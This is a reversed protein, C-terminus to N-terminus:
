RRAAPDVPAVLRDAHDVSWKVLQALMDLLSRGFETLEYDTRAPVTPWITRNLLGYDELKRLKMTLIRQSIPTAQTQESFINVLRHLESHRFIGEGLIFLILPMWRDGVLEYTRLVASDPAVKDDIMRELLVGLGMARGDEADGGSRNLARALEARTAERGRRPAEVGPSRYVPKRM